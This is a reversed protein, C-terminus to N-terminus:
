LIGSVEPKPLRCLQALNPQWQCSTQYCLNNITCYEIEGNITTPLLGLCAKEGINDVTVIDGGM